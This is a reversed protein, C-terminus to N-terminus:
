EAPADDGLAADDVEVSVSLEEGVATVRVTVGYEVPPDEAATLVCRTSAGEEGRLGEECAVVPRTGVEEELADAAASAVEDATLTRSACGGLAVTAGLALVPLLRHPPM